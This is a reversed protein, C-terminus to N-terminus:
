CLGVVISMRPCMMIFITWSVDMSSMISTIVVGLVWSITFMVGVEVAVSSMDSILMVSESVVMFSAMMAISMVSFAPGMTGVMAMIHVMFVSLEMINWTFVVITCLMDVLMSLPSNDIVVVIMVSMIVMFKRMMNEIDLMFHRSMFCMTVDIVWSMFSIMSTMIIM